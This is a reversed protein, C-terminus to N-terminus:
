TPSRTPLHSAVSVTDPERKNGTARQYASIAALPVVAWLLLGTIGVAVDHGHLYVVGRIADLALGNPLLDRTAQAWSPLMAAPLVGGTVTGLTLLVITGIVTGLARSLTLFMATTAAVCVVLLSVLGGVAAAASEPVVGFIPGALVAVSTGLLVALTASSAWHAIASLDPGLTVSAIAFLYGALVSGFVLYFLSLGSSDQHRLPDIDHVVPHMGAAAAAPTLESAVAALASLGNAGALYVAAPSGPVLGALATGHTVAREAGAPSPVDEFVWHGPHARDVAKEFAAAGPGPVM